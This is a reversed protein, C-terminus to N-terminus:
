IFCHASPYNIVIKMTFHPIVMDDESDSEENPAILDALATIASPNLEM